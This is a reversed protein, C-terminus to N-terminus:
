HLNQCDSLSHPGPSVPGDDDDDGGGDHHVYVTWSFLPVKYATVPTPTCDIEM